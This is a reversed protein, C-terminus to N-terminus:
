NIFGASGESWRSADDRRSADNVGSPLRSVVTAPECRIDVVETSCSRHEDITQSNRARRANILRVIIVLTRKGLSEMSASERM